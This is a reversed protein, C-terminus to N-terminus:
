RKFGVHLHDQHVTNTFTAGDATSLAWPGGVEDSGEALAREMLTRAPNDPEGSGALDAVPVGDIAWIDVARGQVHNSVSASDFVNHPHGTSLVAVSLEHDEGLTLLMRLVRDDIAGSLIDWKVTDPLDLRQSSLVASGPDDGAAAAADSTSTGASPSPGAPPPAEAPPGGGISEISSVAWTEGTKALRVDVVRTTSTPEGGDLLHVTVVTMVSARNGTLGGLQPYIIEATGAASGSLLDAAGDLPATPLGAEDLRQQAAERTGDGAGYRLLTELYAAAATKVDPAPETSAVTYSAVDPLVAATPSPPPADAPGSGGGCATAALTVALLPLLIWPRM